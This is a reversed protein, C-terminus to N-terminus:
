AACGTTWSAHPPGSTRRPFRRRASRHHLPAPSRPSGPGGAGARVRSGLDRRGMGDAKSGAALRDRVGVEDQGPQHGDDPPPGVVRLQARVVLGGMGTEPRPPDRGVGGADLLSRVAAQGVEADIATAMPEGPEGPGSGSCGAEVPCVWWLGMSCRVSPTAVVPQQDEADPTVEDFGELEGGGEPALALGVRAVLRGHVSQGRLAGPRALLGFQAVPAAPSWSESMTLPSVWTLVASSAAPRM